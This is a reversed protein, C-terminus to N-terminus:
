IAATDVVTTLFHYMDVPQKERLNTVHRHCCNTAGRPIPMTQGDATLRVYWSVCLRFGCWVDLEFFTFVNQM